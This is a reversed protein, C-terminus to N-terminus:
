MQTKYKKYKKINEEYDKAKILKIQIGKKILKPDNIEIREGTQTFTPLGHKLRDDFYIYPKVHNDDERYRKIWMWFVYIFDSFNREGILKHMMSPGDGSGLCPKGDGGHAHPHANSNCPHDSSVTFIGNGQIHATIRGVFMEIIPGSISGEINRGLKAKVTTPKFTINVTGNNLTVEEVIKQKKVKEIQKMFGAVADKDVVDLAEIKNKLSSVTTYFGTLSTEYDHINITTTELDNKMKRIEEKARNNFESVMVKLKFTDNKVTKIDNNKILEKIDKIVQVLYKNEKYSEVSRLDVNHFPNFWLLVLNREPYYVGVNHKEIKLVVKKEEAITEVNRGDIYPEKYGELTKWKELVDFNFFSSSSSRNDYPNFILKLEDSIPNIFNTIPYNKFGIEKIGVTKFEKEIEKLVDLNKGLYIYTGDILKNYPISKFISNRVDEATIEMTELKEFKELWIKSKEDMEISVEGTLSSPFTIKIKGGTKLTASLVDEKVWKSKHSDKLRKIISEIFALKEKYKKIM